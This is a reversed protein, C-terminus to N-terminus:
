RAGKPAGHQQLLELILAQQAKADASGSGGRGTTRTALDMPTSGSTNTLRADAGGDLLAGVAAGCRTRVARHLPAVGSIDKADPDAGATILVAIVAAQAAPSWATSGPVGDAAYHLPQAGRRNKAGVDAGLDLLTRAVDPQHAAAAVHLATDGVYVYHNIADLYFTSAERRTAGSTMSAGALAPSATLMRSVTNTDGAAIARLLEMLASGAAAM